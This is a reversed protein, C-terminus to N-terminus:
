SISIYGIIRIAGPLNGIKVYFQRRVSSVYTM